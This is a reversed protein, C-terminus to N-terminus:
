LPKECLYGVPCAAFTPDNVDRYAGQKDVARVNIFGTAALQRAQKDPTILYRLLRFNHGPDIRISYDDHFEQAPLRSVYNRCASLFEKAGYLVNRPTLKLDMNKIAEMSWPKAPLKRGNASSFVFRGGPRLLRFVEALVQLRGEHSVSDIGNWSFLVFDFEGDAFEKMDRADAVRFDMGPFRKVCCDVMAAAYDVGVYRAPKYAMLFPTTRGAGVGIDLVRAGALGPGVERMLTEEGFLLSNRNAYYGVTETDEYLEHSFDTVM